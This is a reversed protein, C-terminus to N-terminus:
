KESSQPRWVGVKKDHRAFELVNVGDGVKVLGGVTKQTANMGFCAEYKAGPDSRLHSVLTKTIQPELTATATNNSPVTCRTCRSAIYFTTSRQHHTQSSQSPQSPDGIIITKWLEENYPELTGSHNTDTSSPSPAVIINPRFNLISFNETTSPDPVKTRLKSHIDKLSVESAILFPFGDAFATKIQLTVTLYPNLHQENSCHPQGTFVLLLFVPSHSFYGFL